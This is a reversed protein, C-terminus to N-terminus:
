SALSLSFVNVNQQLIEGKVLLIKLGNPCTVIPAVTTPLQAQPEVVIELLFILLM